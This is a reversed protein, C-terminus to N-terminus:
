EFHPNSAVESIDDVCAKIIAASAGSKILDLLRAADETLAQLQKQSM